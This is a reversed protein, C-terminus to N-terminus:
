GWEAKPAHVAKLHVSGCRAVVFDFFKMAHKWEERAQAHMWRAMGRLEEDELWAAM